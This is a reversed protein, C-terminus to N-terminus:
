SVYEPCTERAAAWLADLAQEIDTTTGLAQDIRARWDSNPLVKDQQIATLYPRSIGTMGSLQSQSLGRVARLTRVRTAYDM